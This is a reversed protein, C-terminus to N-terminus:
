TQLKPYHINIMRYKSYTIISPTFLRGRRRFFIYKHQTKDSILAGKISNDERDM